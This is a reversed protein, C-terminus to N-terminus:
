KTKPTLVPQSAHKLLQLAKRQSEKKSAIKKAHKIAIELVGHNDEIEGSLIYQINRKSIKGKLEECIIASLGRPFSTKTNGNRKM